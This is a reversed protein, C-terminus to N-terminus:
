PTKGRAKNAHGKLAQHENMLFRLPFFTGCKCIACETALEDLGSLADWCLMAEVLSHCM